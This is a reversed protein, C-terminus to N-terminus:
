QATGKVQLSECTASPPFGNRLILGNRVDRQTQCASLSLYVERDDTLLATPKGGPTLTMYVVVIWLTM